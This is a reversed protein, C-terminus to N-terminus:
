ATTKRELIERAEEENNMLTGADLRVVGFRGRVDFGFQDVGVLRPDKIDILLGDGDYFIGNLRAAEIHMIAWRVDDPEGHYIRWRDALHGDAGDEDFRELSVMLHLSSAEEDPLYLVTQEATLMAVMVPSVLRGEQDIVVKMPLVNEDFQLLGSLHGHLWSLPERLEPDIMPPDNSM